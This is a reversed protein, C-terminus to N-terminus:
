EAANAYESCQAAMAAMHSWFMTMGELCFGAGMFSHVEM